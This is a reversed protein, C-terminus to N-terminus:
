YQWSIKMFYSKGIYGNQNYLSSKFEKHRTSLINQVGFSLDLNASPLYGIRTDYRWYSPIGKSNTGNISPLSDVYFLFNDFEINNTINYFTKLKVQQKPSSGENVFLSDSIGFNTSLETSNQNYKLKMKLYDYSIEARLSNNYKYKLVSEFGFVNGKGKNEFFINNGNSENTRLNQYQNFFVSNDFSLNNNLKIRQGFEYSYLKEVKFTKNGQLNFDVVNLDFEGRTPTRVSKSWSSWITQNQSPYYSFKINPQYQFSKVFANKETKIGATINFKDNFIFKNQIFGSLIQNNRYSPFYQLKVDTNNVNNIIQRYGLGWILENNKNFNYFHQLDFNIVKDRIKLIHYNNYDIYSNALIYSKDNINHTINAIVHGSDDKKNNNLGNITFYNGTDTKSFDGSISLKNSKDLFSNNDYRFGFQNQKIYDQNNFTDKVRDLGDRNSNKFYFRYSQDKKLKDGYRIETISKNYNGINQSLYFGKTDQSKKTIINIVGNVANSGWLAGGSGRIVEIKEIDELIYDHKDWFVGSFLTSYIIRGDIMVLLKNSFQRNFGRVTIAYSHGNIRAVQVGPILRLIEPISTAGSRRIEESSLQYIASASDFSNEQKKNLSFFTPDLDIKELSDKAYVVISCFTLLLFIFIKFFNLMVLM